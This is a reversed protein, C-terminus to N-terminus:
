TSTGAALLHAGDVLRFIACQSSGCGQEGRCGQKARVLSLGLQKAKGQRSDRRVSGGASVRVGDASGAHACRIPM